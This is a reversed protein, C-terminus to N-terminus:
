SSLDFFGDTMVNKQAESALRYNKTYLFGVEIYKGYKLIAVYM